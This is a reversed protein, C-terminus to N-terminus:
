VWSVDIDPLEDGYDPREAKKRRKPIAVRDRIQNAERLTNYIECLQRATDDNMEFKARMYPVFDPLRDIVQHGAIAYLDEYRMELAEAFRRVVEPSPRKYDGSELRSIYSYHMHVTDALKRRTMGKAERAQHIYQGLTVPRAPTVTQTDLKKTMTAVTTEQKGRVSHVSAQLKYITKYVVNLM